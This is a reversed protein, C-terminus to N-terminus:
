PRIREGLIRRASTRGIELRRAIAAKSLGARHLKRVQDTHLAATLPGAWGNATRAPTRWAPV